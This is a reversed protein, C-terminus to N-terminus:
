VADSAVYIFFESYTKTAPDETSGYPNEVRDRLQWGSINDEVWKTFPRHIVAQNKTDPRTESAYIIVFRRAMSFLDRLYAEWVDDEVLHFLVDLSMSVDSQLRKLPDAFAGSAYLLFSKTPDDAFMSVCTRVATPSVDM